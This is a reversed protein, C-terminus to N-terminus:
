RTADPPLRALRLGSLGGGVIKLGTVEGKRGREVQLVGLGITDTDFRDPMVPFLHAETNSWLARATLRGDKVALTYTADVERSYYDGELAKLAAPPAVYPASRRFVGGLSADVLDSLPRFGTVAGKADREFQFWRMGDGLGRTFIDRERLILPMRPQTSSTWYLKDGEATLDVSWIGDPVYRGALAAVAEPALTVPKANEKHVVDGAAPPAPGLWAAILREAPTGVDIPMNSTVAVGFHAEPIWVLISRFGAIAGTHAIADRGAYRQRWLGYGYNVPAGSTLKAPATIKAVLAEDGAPPCDLYAIWRALDASTTVLGTSGVYEINYIWKRWGGGPAPAYPAAVGPVIATADERFATHTMGLPRFIRAEAFARLSQGSVRRVIEALLIYDTNSYSFQAGPEYRLTAQRGVLRVMQAQTLRASSDRQALDLLINTDRLGGTHHILDRVRLPRGYDPLEPLYRRIDADADVKGDRELLAVAYATFEKSVSAVDFPTDATAAQGYELNAMGLTRAYVSQGDRYVTVSIAPADKRDFAALAADAAKAPDAAQAAAPAAAALVWLAAGWAAARLAAPARSM